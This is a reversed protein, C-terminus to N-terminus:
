PSVLRKGPKPGTFALDQRAIPHVQAALVTRLGLASAGPRPQDISHRREERHIGVAFITLLGVVVGVAILAFAAVAYIEIM